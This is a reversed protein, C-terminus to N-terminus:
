LAAHLCRGYIPVQAGHLLDHILLTQNIAGEPSSKVQVIIYCTNMEAALLSLYYQGSAGIETAENTRESFGGPATTDEWSDIESDLNAAGSMLTGDNKTIPFVIITAQNKTRRLEM